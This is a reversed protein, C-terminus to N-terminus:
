GKLLTVLEDPVGGDPEAPLNVLEWGKGSADMVMEPSISQVTAAVGHSRWAFEVEVGAFKAPLTDPPPLGADDFARLWPSSTGDVASRAELITTGRALDILLQAVEASSRDIKEHDPQNFYSLLCRYCGRICAEGEKETLLSADGASIAAEINEFHMLALATRAVEGVAKPDDILRTLVGAGGETAEYALIARRNDRAPLPEGLIEGEELQYVVEIGRMLAHQVTTITEPEFKEPSKFRFLLANKRDRVIPVIRVPKVVDPPTETEADEDESKAWYGTRPDINFGLVTQDKRRKLGKNLRSIEASNAYQLALLSTEGCKFEANTVQLQGDKRPWAFITQIDFGQRVREEDNATIREIPAAEVNDIRLTRKVPVEGAMHTDCGHCREVEGEHCAGCNPCIYIDKTALESGDGQRVEPPLKAKMVRYARGEHYILSRPGFESIALFRARSLFSGSKGEGPVFAYLPLRPFNYGPLFGETALYRYSYFDSGNSAKGQELIALQDSAQMQAAKIKRRDAASLGTIESRANAEALQNRASNYLERWRDFARDFAKPATMAVQLLFEEPDGMWTPAATSEGALIQALVRKMPVRARSVLDTRSIVALIEEKLPYGAGTLDLIEPIDAALALRTEALWVAHLHSRVLEENTIDLAPPRVVGAVMDNRRAFFYQDHPSGSACYTFVVAAQGSRGARGARQAYNAPTPPVNRLYVANLASIDVGLEMTPSCFLAPLFQDSEGTAAIESRYESTGLNQQDDDEFRFRWERWERQKQSVQATHERGELGWYASRGSGLEDAISAYLDHFYRNGRKTEDKLAAGPVLRVSSPRLRWGVVDADLHVPVVLGEDALLALLRDIFELYDQKGLKTGIVSRKNILRAIRSNHGARLFTQEERLGVVGKGPARPLLCSWSRPNEKADIAWPSRLLSRSKQAVGDLVALDLAETNVALGELMAGLLKKLVDCRQDESLDGLEPLVTMLRERDGAIEKVGVFDVDLLNLVFLSPNTYRWGRRLDTWVRHALVKALARQADDRIVAGASPELMWHARADANSSTFGLARVVRLGFEDESLGEEGASIIARLIAGRLLSVFLFDNFHGAQLAADQRNDTFGLLKRKTKPVGSEPHNMWELASAVLLTTASSRGEGSLGALKSRERMGQNPEDLCCLCFAFKGPIFWFDRGGAGHKGDPTIVYSVPARKKRYSRLREVGNREERWSEPYGDLEGNFAFELDGEPIPCLYGAVDDDEEAELPTDDINRPLFRIHGDDETKTVVHYEHGCGRCFRTPYLRNGPADPDELQGEFLVTRPREALTTFIEGAGSIFRHLKFALFAGDGSGGRHKEPLSVRTLFAELRERCHEAAVGSDAALLAVADEFPIPKKRKLELGDDLGLALEAWVALPHRRLTGDDLVDPLPGNLTSALRAKARELDITDDTARQLAEDIVADPGIESGFLRTAVKAVALARSEDSGESAMTASTGICIPAKEPACRDRLRRVLVAVDAGQRGRYTHLEDLIIFELGAANNIVQTDLADQRTLLLEAMMYNTLLIDPPNAAIRQREEQSEQGTYRKVVPKLRDPLGSQSIFKDIEKMQSNALANMPYIIIARTKRPKGARLARIIADVVPVFFCLSKGSGTGTTVVYSKSSKAKAIAEAQHRHFRLPVEGFRFVQGTGEDLDGSAVLENVSPGALFRPNLSLLADPWFRGADYEADIRKSLDDSRISSFSRSFREYSGVLHHDFEFAKM